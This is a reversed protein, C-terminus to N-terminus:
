RTGKYPSLFASKTKLFQSAAVDLPSCTPKTPLDHLSRQTGPKNPKSAAPPQYICVSLLWIFAAHEGSMEEGLKSSCTHRLWRFLQNTRTVTQAQPQAMATLPPDPGSM